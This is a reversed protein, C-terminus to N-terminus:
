VDDRADFSGDDQDPMGVSALHDRGGGVALVIDLRQDIHCRESRFCPFCSGIEGTLERASCKALREGSRDLQYIAADIKGDVLRLKVVLEGM